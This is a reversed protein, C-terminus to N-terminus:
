ARPGARRVGGDNRTVGARDLWEAMPVVYKRSAGTMDKLHAIELSSESEFHAGVKKRLEELRDVHAFLRGELKVVRGQDVLLRFGADKLDSEAAEFLPEAERVRQEIVDLGAAADADLEPTASDARVRDGSVFIPFEGEAWHLLKAFLAAPGDFGLAQRLEASGLGLSMPAGEQHARLLQLVRAVLDDLGERMFIREAIVQVRGAQERAGIRASDFGSMRLRESLEERPWGARPPLDDGFAWADESGSELVRLRRLTEARREGMRGQPEVVVAGAATIMPSWTRLVIRDGPAAILPQDLLLRALATGGSALAADHDLLDLRAEVERAAHHVHIAARPRMRSALVADDVATIRVGLIMAPAWAKGGVLQDGRDLEDQKIQALSIAVREGAGAEEASAGHSQVERVRLERDQPLLRLSDGASVTGSWATGTVVVGAGPLAFVRDLPMRFDAERSRVPASGCLEILTSRLDELGEGTTGSVRVVPADELFSGATLDRVEEEVVDTLEPDALDIKTLVILGSPVGLMRLVDFHERTQPMVGEDAAVLLMALDMGGAGAVMQRVFREHGPVDVIGLRLDDALDLQAFGLEISIGRRHEEELRDTDTGTLARVLTTKGHDVHGATGLILTRM